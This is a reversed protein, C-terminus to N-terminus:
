RYSIDMGGLSGSIHVNALILLDTSCTTQKTKNACVNLQLILSTWGCQSLIQVYVGVCESVGESACVCVCAHVCSHVCAYMCVCVTYYVNHIFIHTLYIYEIM